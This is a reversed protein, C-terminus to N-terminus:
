FNLHSLPQCLLQQPSLIRKLKLSNSIAIAKRSDAVLTFTTTILDLSVLAIKVGDTEIVLAHAFLPDHTGEAGRAVYYGAMPTGVPPTINRKATGATRSAASASEVSVVLCVLVAFLRLM